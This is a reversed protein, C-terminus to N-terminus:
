QRNQPRSRAAPPIQTDSEVVRDSLDIAINPRNDATLYGRDILFARLASPYDAFERVRQGQPNLTELGWDDARDYHVLMFEWGQQYEGLLIKQAVYGALVGNVGASNERDRTALYMGYAHSRMLDRFNRTVDVLGGAQFSLVITPPYSSVYSSFAYLFTNDFTVFESFGDGNLDEFYGAGGDLPFTQTRRFQDGRWSYLTFITCCHAGGTYTNFIVEPIADSDLDQLTVQGHMWIAESGEAELTGNVFIRYRLNDRETEEYGERPTYSVVVRVPGSEIAANRLREGGFDLTPPEAAIAPAFLGFSAAGLGTVAIAGHLWRCGM